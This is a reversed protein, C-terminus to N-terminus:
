IVAGEGAIASVLPTVPRWDIVRAGLYRLDSILSNRHMANIRGDLPSVRGLFMPLNPSLVVVEFGHAVLERISDVVTSDKYLPTFIIVPSHPTFSPVLLEQVAKM